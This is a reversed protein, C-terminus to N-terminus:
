LINWFYLFEFHPCISFLLIEMLNVIISAYGYRAGSAEYDPAGNSKSYFYNHLNTQECYESTHTVGCTNSSTIKLGYAANIFEPMCKKALGTVTDYCDSEYRYQTQPVFSQESHPYDSGLRNFDDDADVPVSELLDSQPSDTDLTQASLLAIVQLLVLLQAVSNPLYSLSKLRKLSYAVFIM